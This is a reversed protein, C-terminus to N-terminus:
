ASHSRHQYSVSTGIQWDELWGLRGSPACVWPRLQPRHCALTLCVCALSTWGAFCPNLVTLACALSACSASVDRISGRISLPGVTVLSAPVVAVLSAPALISCGLHLMCLMVGCCKRLVFLRAALQSITPLVHSRLVAEACM